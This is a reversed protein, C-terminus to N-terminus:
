AYSPDFGNTAMPELGVASPDLPIQPLPDDLRLKLCRISWALDIWIRRPQCVPKHGVLALRTLVAASRLVHKFLKNLSSIVTGVLADRGKHALPLAFPLPRLICRVSAGKHRQHECRALRKLEVPAFIPGIDTALPYLQLHRMDLQRVAAGKQHPGIQQLRMLHQEIGM